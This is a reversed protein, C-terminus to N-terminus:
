WKIWNEVNILEESEIISKIQQLLSVGLYKAELRILFEISRLELDEREGLCAERLINRLYSISIYKLCAQFYAWTSKLSLKFLSKM